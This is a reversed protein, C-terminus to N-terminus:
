EQGLKEKLLEYAIPMFDRESVLGVLRGEKLVPLCSVGLERMLEIAEVTPTEPTVSVPDPDMVERVAMGQPIGKGPSEAMIRLIQRYSIFGVLRHRHDEVPVHRIQKRDMLFAALEVLEDENVSFVTTNMYQGVRLFTHQWGGAETLTAPAWEHVPRGEKQLRLATAAIAALRESRTGQGKLNAVSRLTWVSGNQGSEVRARIVGLYRAVDEEDVGAKRLHRDALPLLRDLILTRADVSEGDFWEFGANLGLRAAAIFNSRAEDFDLKRTVDGVEESVGLVLGAWFAGNAVEDLVTPGSPLVRCEIRLHPKGDMVGYCPRNWRYITGNFLQLAKLDPIEGRHLMQLADEEIREALLVRFRAIDEQFLEVVSGDVWHEGFRVRALVDRQHLSTDRTDLSQQFLAIRTEAWLRKGFLLPSNAAAALVPALVAQAANYFRAFEEASVQLHFQCSANCAELMVSDHEVHLEDWGVVKLNYPTGGRMRNMAENLAYYRPVPTINELTLDAKTITPLIGALFVDAGEEQAAERVAALLEDLKQHVATLCSGQLPVPPLNLELNFRALETTFLDSGLRGLVEPAVLAPHFTRDVLFAEQEAGFRRVDSEILGQSLIEELAQLDVLLAKTFSRVDDPSTEPVPYADM